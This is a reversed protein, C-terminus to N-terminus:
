SIEELIKSLAKDLAFFLNFDVTESDIDVKCKAITLTKSETEILSSVVKVKSEDILRESLMVTVSFTTTEIGM